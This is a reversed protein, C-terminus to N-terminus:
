QKQLMSYLDDKLKLLKLKQQEEIKTTVPTTENEMNKVIKILEHYEDYLKRFHNDHTKLGHIQDKLNPFEHYLDHHTDNM